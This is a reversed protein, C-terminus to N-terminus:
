ECLFHMIGVNLVFARKQLHGNIWCRSPSAAIRGAGTRGRPGAASPRGTALSGTRGRRYGAIATGTRSTDAGVWEADSTHRRWSFYCGELYPMETLLSNLLAIFVDLM